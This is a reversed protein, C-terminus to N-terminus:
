TKLTYHRMVSQRCNIEQYMSFLDESLCVVLGFEQLLLVTQSARGDFNAQVKKGVAPTSLRIFPFVSVSLLCFQCLSMAVSGITRLNWFSRSRDKVARKQFRARHDHCHVAKQWYIAVFFQRPAFLTSWRRTKNNNNSKIVQVYKVFPYFGPILHSRQCHVTHTNRYRFLFTELTFYFQQCICLMYQIYM